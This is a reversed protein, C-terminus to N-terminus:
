YGKRQGSIKYDHGSARAKPIEIEGLKLKRELREQCEASCATLLDEYPIAEVDARSFFGRFGDGWLGMRECENCKWLMGNPGKAVLTM